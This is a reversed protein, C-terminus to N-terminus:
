IEFDLSNKVTAYIGKIQAKPLVDINGINMIIELDKKATQPRFNMLEFIRGTSHIDFISERDCIGDMFSKYFANAAIFDEKHDRNYFICAPVILISESSDKLKELLVPMNHFGAIYIEKAKRCAMVAKSGSNTVIIACSNPNSKEIALYPSNDFKEIESIEMESFFEGGPNKIHWLVASEKDSFIKIDKKGRKVLCALTCSFRFLDIVVACGCFDYVEDKDFAVRVNRM